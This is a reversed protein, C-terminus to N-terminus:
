YLVRFNRDVINIGDGIGAIIAESRAKENRAEIMSARLEEQMRRSEEQGRELAAATADFMRALHGFEGPVNGLGSRVSLDGAAMRKSAETLAEVPRAIMANGAFWVIAFGALAVLSLVSLNRALLRMPGESFAATPTGLMVFGGRDFSRGRLSSFILLREVGDAGAARFMGSREGSMKGFFAPDVTKGPRFVATGPHATLVTGSEDLRVYVSNRPLQKLIDKERETVVSLDVSSILISLLRGGEDIVPYAFPLIPRGGWVSVIYPGLTFTRNGLAGQFHPHVAVNLPKELPRASCTVLGDVRATGFNMYGPSGELVGALFASCRAGGERVPPAEALAALLGRTARLFEEEHLVV